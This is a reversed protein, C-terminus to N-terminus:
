NEKKAQKKSANDKTETDAGQQTDQSSQSSTDDAANEQANDRDGPSDEEPEPRDVAQVMSVTVVSGKSGPVLGIITMENNETDVAIVTTKKVTITDGGMRGAMKKGKDVNGPTTGRGISGPARLRDSQGHTAPGGGFGWRKVVGAFGKGKSTGTVSVTDGPYFVDGVAVQMGLMGKEPMTNEDQVVVERLFRPKKKTLGAKTAHGRQPKKLAKDNVMDFGIQVANYSDTDTTKIQVVPCPGVSLVTVPRRRGNKDFHQTQKVKRGILTDIM